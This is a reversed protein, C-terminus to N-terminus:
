FNPNMKLRIKHTEHVKQSKGTKEAPLKAHEKNQTQYFVPKSHKQKQRTHYRKVEESRNPPEFRRNGTIEVNEKVPYRGAVVQFHRIFQKITPHPEAKTM